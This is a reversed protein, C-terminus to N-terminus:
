GPRSEKWEEGLEQVTKGTIEKFLEEKYKGNRMAENLKLVLDKDYKEAVYGLFAATTRYSADYKARDRRIPRLSQPEYKIFRVYDAVGEVLWGPNGRGRYRQVVHATEHVMAGYDDKHSSFYKVSGVIRNGSAYAVGDYDKKLTMTILREPRFGDSKLEECIMPYAKVCIEVAKEAWAKMEPADTVDIIFEVPYQFTAVPPDSEILIERLSIKHELDSAPRIRIAKAQVDALELKPVACEADFKGREVFTEGDASTEIVGADLRGIALNLSKLKVPQEFQLTFHDDVKGNAASEFFTEADGDFALQRINRGETALSSEISAMVKPASSEPAADDCWAPNTTAHGLLVVAFLAAVLRM